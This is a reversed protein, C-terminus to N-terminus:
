PNAGSQRRPPGAAGVAWVIGGGGTLLLRALGYATPLDEGRFMGRAWMGLGALVLHAAGCVIGARLGILHYAYWLPVIMLPAIWLYASAIRRLM